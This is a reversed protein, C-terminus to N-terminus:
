YDGAQLSVVATLVRIAVIWSLQLAVGKFPYACAIYLTRVLLQMKYETGCRSIIKLSSIFVLWEESGGWPLCCDM